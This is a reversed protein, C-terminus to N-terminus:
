QNLTFGQSQSQQVVIKEMEDELIKAARNEEIMAKDLQGDERLADAYAAIKSANALVLPFPVRTWQAADTLEDGPADAAIAKFCDRQAASYVLDGVAYTGATDVLAYTFQSPRQRYEVWVSNPWPGPGLQLGATSLRFPIVKPRVNLNPDAAYIAFVEGFADKGTQEYAIYRNLDTVVEWFDTDSLADGDAAQLARYYTATVSDYVEDGEVYATLLSFLPRVLREEIPCLEPWQFAEWADAIRTNLYETLAAAQSPLLNSTPDLGLWYAVGHLVSQFTVTRM